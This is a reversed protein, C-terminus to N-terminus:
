AGNVYKGRASCGDSQCSFSRCVYHGHRSYIPKKDLTVLGCVGDDTKKCCYVWVEELDGRAPDPDRFDGSRFNAGIARRATAVAAYNDARQAANGAASLRKFFTNAYMREKLYPSELLKTWKMVINLSPPNQHDIGLGNRLRTAHGTQLRM